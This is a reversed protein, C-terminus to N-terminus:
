PGSDTPAQGAWVLFFHHGIPLLLGWSHIRPIVDYGSNCCIEVAGQLWRNGNPNEKVRTERERGQKGYEPDELVLRGVSPLALPLSLSLSVLLLAILIYKSM